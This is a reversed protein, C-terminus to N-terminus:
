PHYGIERLLLQPSMVRLGLSSVGVFDRQNHTVIADVGAAVALEAIMDDGPDRAIPRWLYFISQHRAVSCLFDLVGGVDEADLGLDDAKRLLVDEYELLLPVSLAIEYAGRRLETLLAFSAGRRSRLGALVVNTDLVVLV